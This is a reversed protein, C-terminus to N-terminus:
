LCKGIVEILTQMGVGTMGSHIPVLVCPRMEPEFVCRAFDFRYIGANVGRRNLETVLGEASTKCVSLPVAYPAVGEAELHSCVDFRDTEARLLRYNERRATLEADRKLDWLALARASPLVQDGYRAYAMSRLGSLGYAARPTNLGSIWEDLLKVSNVFLRLSRAGGKLRKAVFRRFEPDNNTIGGLAFCFAFKSFSFIGYDGLLGVRQGKYFSSAAHACDEIVVMKRASAIELVKDMNQPFGFQHYCFVVPAKEDSRTTPFGCNLMQSYVWTGLWHPVLIPTMKHPLVGSIKLYALVIAIAAKGSGVYIMADDSSAVSRKRFLDRPIQPPQEFTWTTM